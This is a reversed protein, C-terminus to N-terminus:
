WKSNYKFLVDYINNWKSKNKFVEVAVVVVVMICQLHHKKVMYVMLIIKGVLVVVVFIQSKQYLILDNKITILLIQNYITLIQNM